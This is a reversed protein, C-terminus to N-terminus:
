AKTDVSFVQGLMNRCYEDLRRVTATRRAITNGHVPPVAALALSEADSMLYPM